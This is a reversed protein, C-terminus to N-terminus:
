LTRRGSASCPPLGDTHGNLARLVSESLLGEKYVDHSAQVCAPAVPRQVSEVERHEQQCAITRRGIFFGTTAALVVLGLAGAILSTITWVRSQDSRDPYPDDAEDSQSTPLRSFAHEKTQWAFRVM